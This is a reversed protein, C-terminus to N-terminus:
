TFPTILIIAHMIERELDAPSLVKEIRPPEYTPGGSPTENM